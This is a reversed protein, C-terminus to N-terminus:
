RGEGQAIHLKNFYFDFIKSAVPAATGGGNGEEMFVVVAIEPNNFPAYGTFWGHERYRGPSIEEGFEATGTKGAV